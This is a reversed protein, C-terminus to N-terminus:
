RLVPFEDALLDIEKVSFVINVADHIENAPDVVGVGAVAFEQLRTASTIRLMPKIFLHAEVRGKGAQLRRGVMEGSGGKM